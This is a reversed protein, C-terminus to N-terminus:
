ALGLERAEEWLEDRVDPHACNTILNAAQQKEDVGWIPALGQETVVASHQFSTVPEDLLPVITSVNAKPHWSRLAMFAQGGESHLAGVIFDTSGGFGSYIRANIRSANAQAFLDIQLATNVSTMRPQRAILGPDNTKETRLIRVRRNKDVWDYLNRTGFLFSATIIEDPDLAGAADLALLGDSFMESWIRLGKRETLGHLVADPVAGIGLQMTSGDLVRHSVREGIIQATEDLPAANGSKLTSDVEVLYDIDDLPIQGDGYTYPMQKNAQAIVLGGRARVAEVAAPLVNVETGMSVTGHDDPMSTHLIVVDPPMTTAFLVPVLSLRAPIFCLRSSKRQGAGVFPTELTIGERDPIGPHGNLIFLRFEPLARDLADLLEHPHAFNGSAVVRPVGPLASFVHELAEISVVKM